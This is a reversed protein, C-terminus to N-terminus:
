SVLNYFVVIGNTVYHECMPTAIVNATYLRSENTVLRNRYAIVAM